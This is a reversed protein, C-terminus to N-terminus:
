GARPKIQRVSEMGDASWHVVLSRAGECAGVTKARSNGLFPFLGVKYATNKAKLEEETLGVWAVEPWTYVVSPIANYNVHGAKGAILEAAAIGEEEAKHALM